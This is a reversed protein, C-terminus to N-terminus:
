FPFSKINIKDRTDRHSVQQEIKLYKTTRRFTFLSLGAGDEWQPHQSMQGHPHTIRPHMSTRSKCNGHEDKVEHLQFNRFLSEQNRPSDEQLTKYYYRPKMELCETAHSLLVSEPKQHINSLADLNTIRLDLISDPQHKWLNM